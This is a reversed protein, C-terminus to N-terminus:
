MSWWWIYDSGSITMEFYLDVLVMLLGYDSGILVNEFTSDM